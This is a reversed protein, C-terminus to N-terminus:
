CSLCVTVIISMDLLLLFTALTISIMLMSLEWGALWPGEDDGQGPELIQLTESDSNFTDDYQKYSDERNNDEVTFLAYRADRTYNDYLPPPALLRQRDESSFRGSDFRDVVPSAEFYFSAM